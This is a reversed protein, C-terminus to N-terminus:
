FEVEQTQVKRPWVIEKKGQQWQIMFSNHGIQLGVPDVKFRGFITVTDLGAIYNRLIRNDLTKKQEVARALLQGSSYAAAAHYSLPNSSFERYGRLFQETRPFPVHDVPEWLSPGLVGEAISGAQEYFDDYASVITLALVRPRYNMQKMLRLMEYSDLPYSSNILCAAGSQRVDHLIPPLEKGADRYAREYIIDIRFKRAWDRVGEAVDVNFSSKEDYILAVSTINNRALLDFFGVFLRQAPQFLQFLYRPGRQWPQTSSAGVALMLKHRPECVESAAATLPSSYPALILDVRDADILKVYLDRVRQPDSEDDYLILEVPRGLLGGAKNIEQAWYRYGTQIALSPGAYIGSLSVTAGIRVPDAAEAALSLISEAIFCSLCVIFLILGRSM